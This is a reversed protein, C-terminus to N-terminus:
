NVLLWALKMQPLGSIKSLGSIVFTLVESNCALTASEHEGLPFDLFVEDVILALSRRACIENLTRKESASVFNGTPNNPNLVVIARSRDSIAKELTYFDIQWGHDYILSYRVLKIDLIDGLFSFLPYSPAPVLLEDGPNCLLRFVYSYAESTSTSLILDDVRV